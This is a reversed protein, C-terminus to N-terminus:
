YRLTGPNTTSHSGHMFLSPSLDVDIKLRPDDDRIIPETDESYPKQPWNAIQQTYHDYATRNKAWDQQAATPVGSGAGGTATPQDAFKDFAISYQALAAQQEPSLSEIPKGAKADAAIGANGGYGYPDQPNVPAFKDKLNDPLGNQIFHVAEHGSIQDPDKAFESPRYIHVVTRSGDRVDAIADKNNVAEKQDASAYDAPNQGSANVARIRNIDIHKRIYDPARKVSDRFMKTLEADTYDKDAKPAQSKQDAM